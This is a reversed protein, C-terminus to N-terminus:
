QTQETYKVNSTVNGKRLQGRFKTKSHSFSIAIMKPVQAKSPM